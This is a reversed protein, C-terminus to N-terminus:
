NSIDNATQTGLNAQLEKLKKECMDLLDEPLRKKNGVELAIASFSARRSPLDIAPSANGLAMRM